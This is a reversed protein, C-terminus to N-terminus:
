GGPENSGPISKDVTLTVIDKSDDSLVAQHYEGDDTYFIDLM